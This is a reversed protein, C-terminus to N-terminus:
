KQVTISNVLDLSELKAIVEGALEGEVILTLKADPVMDQDEALAQRIVVRNDALVKTITAIIGTAKPDAGIVIVSYGLESAVGVLSAGFPSLRSYLSMLRENREIQQVTQKVVRRDVGTARALATYDVEVNGVFIKQGEGGRMGCEIMKRAVLLRAKQRVFQNKVQAWM